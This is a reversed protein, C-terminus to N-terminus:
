QSLIFKVGLHKFACVLATNNDATLTCQIYAKIVIQNASLGTTKRM